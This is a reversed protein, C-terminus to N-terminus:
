FLGKVGKETPFVPQIDGDPNYYLYEVCVNRRKGTGGNWDQVHYFFYWQGKYELMSHHDQKQSPNVAGKFEFPGYPSDGIGYFGGRRASYSYYYKGKYKHMYSAEFFNDSGYEVVQPSEALTMLDDSLRAVKPQNVGWYLYVSGEDDMFVCPDLWRGKVGEIWGIDKFPGEPVDSVAIGCRMNRTGDASHPYILYYKDNKYIATPAWMLAEAGWSIHCSHLIEGHDTWNVMDTSSFAHYGDMSDYTTATDMDHSTYMWVKGDHWVHASPDATRIHRVIPNKALLLNNGCLLFLLISLAPKFM